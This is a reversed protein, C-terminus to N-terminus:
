INLFVLVGRIPESKEMVRMLNSRALRSFAIKTTNYPKLMALIAFLFSFVFNAIIADHRSKIEM